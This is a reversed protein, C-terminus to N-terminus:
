GKIDEEAAEDSKIDEHGNIDEAAVEESQIGEQGKIDEAYAATADSQQAEDTALNGPADSECGEPIGIISSSAGGSMTCKPTKPQKM